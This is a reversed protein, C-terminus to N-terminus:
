EVGLTLKINRIMNELDKAKELALLHERREQALSQELARITADKAATTAKMDALNNDLQQKLDDVKSAGEKRLRDLAEKAEKHKSSAENRGKEAKQVRSHLQSNAQRLRQIEAQAVCGDEHASELQMRLTQVETPGQGAYGYAGPPPFFPGPPPPPFAAPPPCFQQPPMPPPHQYAPRNQEPGDYPAVRHQKGWRKNKGM